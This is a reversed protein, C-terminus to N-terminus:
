IEGKLLTCLTGPRSDPSQRSHFNTLLDGVPTPLRNQFSVKLQLIQEVERLVSRVRAKAALTKLLAILTAMSQIALQIYITTAFIAFLSSFIRGTGTVPAPLSSSPGPHFSM